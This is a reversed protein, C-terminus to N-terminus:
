RKAVLSEKICTECGVFAWDEIGIVMLRENSGCRVCRNNASKMARQKWGKRVRKNAGSQAATNKRTVGSAFQLSEPLPGNRYLNRAMIPDVERGSRFKYPVAAWANDVVRAILEGVEATELERLQSAPYGVNLLCRYQKETATLKEGM